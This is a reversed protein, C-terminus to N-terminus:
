CRMLSFFSGSGVSFFLSPCSTQSAIYIFNSSVVALIVWVLCICSSTGMSAVVRGGGGMSLNSM